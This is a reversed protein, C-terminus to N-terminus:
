DICYCFATPDRVVDAATEVFQLDESVSIAQMTCPTTTRPVSAEVHVGFERVYDTSVLAPYADATGVAKAVM